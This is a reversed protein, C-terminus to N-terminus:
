LCVLDNYENGLCHQPAAILNELMQIVKKDVFMM